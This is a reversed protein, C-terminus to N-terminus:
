KQWPGVGHWTRNLEASIVSIAVSNAALRADELFAYYAAQMTSLDAPQMQEAFSRLTARAREIQPEFRQM